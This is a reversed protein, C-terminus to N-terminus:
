RKSGQHSPSQLPYFYLSREKNSRLFLLRHGTTHPQKTARPKITITIAIGGFFSSFIGLQGKKGNAATCPCCRGAFGNLCLSLDVSDEVYLIYNYVDTRSPCSQKWTRHLFFDATCNFRSSFFFLPHLELPVGLSELVFYSISSSFLCAVYFLCFFSQLDTRRETKMCTCVRHLILVYM